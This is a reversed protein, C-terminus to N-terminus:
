KWSFDRYFFIGSDVYFESSQLDADFVIFVTPYFVPMYALSNVVAQMAAHTTEEDQIAAFAALVAEDEEGSIQALNFGTASDFLVSYSTFTTTLGIAIFAAEFDGVFYRSTDTVESITVDFYSQEMMEKIVECGAVWSPYASICVITVKAKNSASYGAEAMLSNAKDLDMDFHDCVDAYYKVNPNGLNYATMGADDSAVSAITDRDMTRVAAERVRIDHFPSTEACNFIFFSTSNASIAKTYVNDFSQVTPLDTAAYQAFDVDGAEFALSANGTVLRFYLTDISATGRYDAFRKLTVDGNGAVQDLYYAGTGDTKTGLNDTSSALVSECFSQNVITLTSFYPALDYFGAGQAAYPFNWVFRLEDVAEMTSYAYLTSALPSNECRSLSYVVDAATLIDGSHFKVGSILTIEAKSGDESVTYDDVLIKELDGSNNTIFLPEYIQLIIDDEVQKSFLAPDLTTIEQVMPLTLSNEAKSNTTPKLNDALASASLLLMAALILALASTLRTKKMMNVDGESIYPCADGGTTRNM